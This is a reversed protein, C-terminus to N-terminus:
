GVKGSSGFEQAKAISAIASWWGRIEDLTEVANERATSLKTGTKTKNNLDLVAARLIPFSSKVALDAGDLNKPWDRRASEPLRAEVRSSFQRILKIDTKIARQIEWVADVEERMYRFLDAGEASRSSEFFEDLGTLAEQVAEAHNAVLRTVAVDNKAAQALLSRTGDTHARFYDTIGSPSFGGKQRENM